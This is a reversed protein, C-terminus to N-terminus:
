SNLLGRARKLIQAGSERGRVALASLLERTSVAASVKRDPRKRLVAVLYNFWWEPDERRGAGEQSYWDFTPHEGLVEWYLVECDTRGLFKAMGWQTSVMAYDDVVLVFEDAFCDRVALLANATAEVTHDADYFCVNIGAGIERATEPLYVSREIVRVRNRGRYRSLREQFTRKVRDAREIPQIFDHWIDVTTADIENEYLAASLTSGAYAGIELHRIGPHGCLNNLLARGKTGSLADESSFDPPLKTRGARADIAATRAIEVLNGPPPPV